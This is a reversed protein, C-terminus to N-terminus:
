FIQHMRFFQNQPLIPLTLVNEGDIVLPYDDVDQWDPNHLDTTSQLYYDSFDLSGTPWSIVIDNGSRRIKLRLGTTDTRVSMLCEITVAAGAALTGLEFRMAGSVWKDSPAFWDLKSLGNTEVSFHVGVSPKDFVHDDIGEVGYRGAEWSSPVMNGHLAVTDKHLVPVESVSDSGTDLGQQTITYRHGNFVPGYNHDDYLAKNAQFSHLFKFFQVTTLSQGSINTISFTQRLVYRDSVINSGAVSSKPALGQPVGNTTDVMESRIQIRVSGDSIVSRGVAFGWQNSGPQEEVPTEAYFGSNVPTWDPFLFEPNLWNPGVPISGVRYAIAAAWEGSLYERGEFGPREDFALDSYGFDDLIISWHPNELFVEARLSTSFATVLVAVALGLRHRFNRLVSDNM